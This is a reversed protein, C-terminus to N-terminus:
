DCPEGGGRPQVYRSLKIGKSLEPLYGMSVGSLEVIHKLSCGCARLEEAYRIGFLHVQCAAENRGAHDYVSRLRRALELDTM